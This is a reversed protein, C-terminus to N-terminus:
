QKAVQNLVLQEQLRLVMQHNQNLLVGIGNYLYLVVEVAHTMVNKNNAKGILDCKVKSPNASVDNFSLLLTIFLLLLLCINICSPMTITMLFSRVVLETQM